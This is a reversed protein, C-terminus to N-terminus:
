RKILRHVFELDTSYETVTVNYIGNKLAGVNLYYNNLGKEINISYNGSNQSLINTFSLNLTASIGSNVTIIIIDDVPNPNISIIDIVNNNCDVVVPPFYKSKGDKGIQKLRYYSGFEYSNKSISENYIHITNCNGCGSISFLSDWSSFDNSVEVTFYDNDTEEATAWDFIIEDNICKAKFYLLDVPLIKVTGSSTRVLRGGHVNDRVSYGNGAGHFRDCVKSYQTSAERWSGGRWGMSNLSLNSIDHNGNAQLVGNGHDGTFARGTAHGITVVRTWLSGSLEYVGYVSAGSSTIADAHNGLSGNRLPGQVSAHNLCALNPSGDATETNKGANTYGTAQTYSTTGWAFMNATPSATGKSAKEYELETMPRLGSWDAFAWDDAYNMWNCAIYSGDELDNNPDGSSFDCGYVRPETGGPDSILKIGNRKTLVTTTGTNDDKMFRGVTTTACRAAQQTRTLTNLFDVYQKQNVNYKMIYFADYGKPYTAGLTGTQDGFDSSAGSTTPYYLNGSTNAITITGSESTVQYPNPSNAGQHLAAYETGGSGLYFSGQPIYVMEIPIVKLEVNDVEADSLGDTGYDWTIAINKWNIDGTGEASRYLFMGLGTTGWSSSSGTTGLEMTVGNPGSHKAMSTVVSAHAWDTGNKYKIFVWVADWNTADRWSDGWAIDFQVDVTNATTNKNQLSANFVRVYKDTFFEPSISNSYVSCSNTLKARFRYDTGSSLAASTYSASTAGSIDAFAANNESKQWQVSAGGSYGSVTMSVTEGNYIYNNTTFASTGPTVSCQDRAIAIKHDGINAALITSKYNNANNLTIVNGGSENGFDSDDDSDIVLYYNESIDNISDLNFEIDITSGAGAFNTKNLKWVRGLVDNTALNGTGTTWTLDGNDHSMLMYDGDSINTAPNSILLLSSEGSACQGDSEQGVGTLDYIFGETEFANSYKDNAITINYKTSLYNEVIRRTANNLASNFYIIEAIDGNFYKSNGNCKGIFFQYVSNTPNAVTINSVSTGDKYLNGATGNYHLNLVTSNGDVTGLDGSFSNNVAFRYRNATSAWGGLYFMYPAGGADADLLGFAADQTGVAKSVVFASIQTGLDISSTSLFKSSAKTFRVVARNNITSSADNEFTPQNAATPQFADNGKGSKDSWQSFTSGDSIGLIDHAKFWMICNNSVGAPKTSYAKFNSSTLSVNQSYSSCGNTVKVRYQYTNSSTHGVTTEYPNTTGLNTWAAGNISQQWQFTGVSATTSLTIPDGEFIQSPSYSVTGPDTSCPVYAFTLFEGDNISLLTKEYLDGGIDTLTYATAGSSFDGDADLLLVFDHSQSYPLGSADLTVTVTGVGNGGTMNVQWERAIRENTGDNSETLTWTSADANDHGFLLYEGTQLDSASGIQLIGASVASANSGDAEMGIGSVDNGYGADYAYKDTAVAINYKSSLYNEIIIREASNIPNNFLAIESINGNFYRSANYRDSCLLDTNVNASTIANIIKYASTSMGTTLPNVSTGNDRWTGGTWGALTYTAEVYQTCGIMYQSYGSTTGFIASYNSPCALAKAVVFATRVDSINNIELADNSGDFHAVPYSNIVNSHFVPYRTSTPNSADNNNGSQDAWTSIYAYSYSCGSQTVDLASSVTISTTSAVATIVLDKDGGSTVIRINKGIDASTFNTGSGTVTASANSVSVTGAVSQYNLTIGADAKLWITNTTSNGVGGPGTQSILALNYCIIFHFLVIPKIFKM